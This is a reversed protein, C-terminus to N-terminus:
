PKSKKPKKKEKKTEPKEEEEAEDGSFLWDRVSKTASKAIMKMLTLLSLGKGEDGAAPAGGLKLKLALEESEQMRALDDLTIGAKKAEKRLTKDNVFRLDKGALLNNFTQNLGILRIKFQNIKALADELDKKRKAVATVEEAQDLLFAVFGEVFSAKRFAAEAQAMSLAHMDVQVAKEAADLAFAVEEDGLQMELTDLDDTELLTTTVEEWAFKIQKNYHASLEDRSMASLSGDKELMDKIETSQPENIDRGIKLMHLKIKDGLTQKIEAPDIRDM